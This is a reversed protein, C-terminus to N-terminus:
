KNDGTPAKKELATVKTEATKARKEAAAQAAEAAEAREIAAKLDLTTQELATELKVIVKNDVPQGTQPLEAPPPTDHWGNDLAEAIADAGTFVQGAPVDLSYLM